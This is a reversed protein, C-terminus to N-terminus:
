FKEAVLSPILIKLEFLRFLLSFQRPVCLSHSLLGFVHAPHTIMLFGVFTLIPCKPPNPNITIQSTSRCHGLAKAVVTRHSMSVWVERIKKVTAGPSTAWNLSSPAIQRPVAVHSYSFPEEAARWVQNLQPCTSSQPHSNQHTTEMSWEWM